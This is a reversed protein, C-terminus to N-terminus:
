IAHCGIRTVAQLLAQLSEPTALRHDQGTTILSTEESMGSLKLLEQSDCYPIVEDAIAHLILTAPKVTTAQGWHKWAPCLLVLPTSGSALNMAVAGGRSSGVIVDPQVAHYATQALSIAQDFDDDPLAPQIVELGNNELYLPKVGGPVSHWGHLYLIKM